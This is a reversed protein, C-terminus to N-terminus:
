PSEAMLQIRVQHLDQVNEIDIHGPQPSETPAVTKESLETSDINENEGMKNIDIHVVDTDAKSAMLSKGSDTNDTSTDTAADVEIVTETVKINIPELELSSVAQANMSMMSQSTPLAPPAPAVMVPPHGTFSALFPQNPQAPASKLVPPYDCAALLSILLLWSIHWIFGAQPLNKLLM